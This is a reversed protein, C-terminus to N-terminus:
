FIGSSYNDHDFFQLTVDGRVKLDYKNMDFNVISDSPYFKPVKNEAKYQNFVTHQRCIHSNEEGSITTICFCILCTSLVHTFMVIHTGEVVPFLM